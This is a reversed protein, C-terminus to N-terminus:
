YIRSIDLWSSGYGGQLNSAAGTHWVYIEIYNGVAMIVNASVSTNCSGAAGPLVETRRIESGGKYIFIIIREGNGATTWTLSAHIKYNGAKTATFRYNTAPDFEGLTDLKEDNFTVKTATTQPISQDATTEAIICTETLIAQKKIKTESM